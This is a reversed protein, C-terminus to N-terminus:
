GPRSMSCSPRCPPQNPEYSVFAAALVLLLLIAGAIWEWAAHAGRAGPDPRLPRRFDSNLNRYEFM